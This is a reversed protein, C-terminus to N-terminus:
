SKGKKIKKIGKVILYVISFLIFAMLFMGIVQGTNGVIDGKIFGGIGSSRNQAEVMIYSLVVALYYYWRTFVFKFYNM